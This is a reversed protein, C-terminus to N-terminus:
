SASLRSCGLDGKRRNEERTLWQMNRPHDPGACALPIIHDVEWGPCSGSVRGTAPCPVSRRFAARASYSRRVPAHDRYAPSPSRHCHYDGTRRNNHCGESNLGGGHALADSPLMLGLIFAIATPFALRQTTM